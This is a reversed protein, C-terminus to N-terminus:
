RRRRDWSMERVQQVPVEPHFIAMFAHLELDEVREQSARTAQNIFCRAAKVREMM